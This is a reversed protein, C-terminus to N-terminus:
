MHKKAKKLHIQIHKNEKSIIQRLIKPDKIATVQDCSRSYFQKKMWFYKQTRDGSELIFELKSLINQLAAKLKKAEM